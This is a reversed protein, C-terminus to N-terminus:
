NTSFIRKKFPKGVISSLIPWFQLKSSNFIPLGDFNFDLHITLNRNCNSLLKELNKKIGNFWLKGHSLETIDVSTPTRMLTRSDKPLSSFGTGILISLLGNIARQSTRHQIAWCKLDEKFKDSENTDSDIDSITTSSMRENYEHLEKLRTQVEKEYIKLLKKRERFKRVRNRTQTAKRTFRIIKTM